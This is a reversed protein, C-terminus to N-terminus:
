KGMENSLASEAPMAPTSSAMVVRERLSVARARIGWMAQRVPAVSLRARVVVRVVM